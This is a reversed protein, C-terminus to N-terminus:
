AKFKLIYCFESLFIVKEWLDWFKVSVKLQSVFSVNIHIVYNMYRRYSWLYNFISNVNFMSKTVPILYVLTGVMSNYLQGLQCRYPKYCSYQKKNQLYSTYVTTHMNINRETQNRSTNFDNVLKVILICSGEYKKQKLCIEMSNVHMWGGCSKRYLVTAISTSSYMSYSSPTNDATTNELKTHKPRTFYIFYHFKYLYITSIIFLSLKYLNLRMYYVLM